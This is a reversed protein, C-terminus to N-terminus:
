RRMINEHKLLDNANSKTKLNVDTNSYGTFQKKLRVIALGSNGAMADLITNNILTDVQM